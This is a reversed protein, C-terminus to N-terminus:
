APSALMADVARQAVQQWKPFSPCDSTDPHDYVQNLTNIFASEDDNDFLYRAPINERIPSLDSALCPIGQRLSEVPPMGFGEYDSFYICVRSQTRMLEQLQAFPLKNHEVWNSSPVQLGEPKEGVLHIKIHPSDERQALWASLRPVVLDSRKHPYPSVYVLVGQADQRQQQSPSAQEEDFGIGIVAVKSTPVLEQYRARNFQTSTLVLDSIQLSRRGLRSFYALQAPPFPSEKSLDRSMYYEWNIDHLYCALKCSGMARFYPPFGKPLIAWDPAIRKIARQVGWQDWYVRGFRRPVAKDALHLSVHAPLEGLHAACEENGLIHLETVQSCNMLGKTLGMAVNFIGISKTAVFSIDTLAILLKMFTNVTEYQPALTLNFLLTSLPKFLYMAGAIM